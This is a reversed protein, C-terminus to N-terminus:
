TSWLCTHSPATNAHFSFVETVRSCTQWVAPRYNPEGAEVKWSGLSMIRFSLYSTLCPSHRPPPPPHQIPHHDQGTKPLVSLNFFKKLQITCAQTQHLSSQSLFEWFKQLHWLCFRTAALTTHFDLFTTDKHRSFPELYSDPLSLDKMQKTVNAM